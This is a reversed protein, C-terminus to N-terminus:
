APWIKRGGGPQSVQDIVAMDQGNLAPKQAAALNALVQEQTRAGPIVTTVAEHQLVFQLAAQALTREPSVLPLLAQVKALDEKYTKNQVPDTLWNQRFDEEAFSSDATLKGTLLGMALSGRTIVGINQAKCYDLIEMEPTRNLISYDIQLSACNGEHNFARLYDFDSTSLGFARVKGAKKLQEFAELFVDMTSERFDIHSQIVDVYDTQLRKLNTEVGAILRAVTNYSSCQNDADFGQWGIKTAVVFRDRRGKMTNGLLIESHGDGYVDATDFFNVGADLATEIARVAAGDADANAAGWDGGGAAWLGLGIETIEIGSKGLIRKKLTM